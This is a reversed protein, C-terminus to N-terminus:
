DRKITRSPKQSGTQLAMQMQMVLIHELEQATKLTANAEEVRNESLEREKLEHLETIRRAIYNEVTSDLTKM